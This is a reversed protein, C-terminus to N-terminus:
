QALLNEILRQFAPYPHAGTLTKRVRITPQTKDTLGFFFSPTGRVGVRKGQSLGDRVKQAYKGSEVCDLLVQNDLELSSGFAKLTGSTLSQPHRFLLDNMEWYKGQDGACHAAQAAKSAGAHSALPFDAFVYKVRGSEVYDEVIRPAVQRDHRRCFFCQYDSFEIMTVKAEASGMFPLGRINIKLFHAQGGGQVALLRGIRSNGDGPGKREAQALPAPERDKQPAATQVTGLVLAVAMWGRLISM